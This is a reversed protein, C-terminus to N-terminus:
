HGTSKRRRNREEKSKNYSAVIRINLDKVAGGKRDWEVASEPRQIEKPVIYTRGTLGLKDNSEKLKGVDKM